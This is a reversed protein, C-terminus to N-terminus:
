KLFTVGCLRERFLTKVSETNLVAVEKNNDCNPVSKKQLSNGYDHRAVKMDSKLVGKSSSVNKM